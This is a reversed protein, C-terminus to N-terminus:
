PRPEPEIWLEGLVLGDLGATRYCRCADTPTCVIPEGAVNFSTNLLAPVGTLAAFAQILAHLRPADDPHVTQLRATGDVHVVAALDARRDPRVARIETMWPSPRPDDFYDAVREALIAPAFPRFPERRKIRANIADRMEARRPDALISRAGLARPGFEMPGDVWGVIAGSALREALFADGGLDALPRALLDEARAADACAAPTFALGLYPTPRPRASSSASRGPPPTPGSRPAVDALDASDHRPALHHGVYAAGIAAGSDGPAFSVHLPRRAALRANAAGNLAVGGGYCLPKGAPFTAEIRLLAEELRNQASRALDRHRQTLPAGPARPPGLLVDLAPSSLRHRGALDLYRRDLHFAGADDFPLLAEMQAAFTDEGFASLGMVKYEGENVEFGLHATILSYFLGLSDPFHIEREPTIGSPGACWVSTTAWEGVGDAVLVIAEGSSSPACFPSSFYAFAAHSLHHESFLVEGRFGGQRELWRRLDIRGDLYRSMSRTFAALSRPFAGLWTELQRELKPLTKEYFVVTDVDAPSIGAADLCAAIARAPYGHDHKIRSLREEEVALVIEGDRLLCAAADHYFASLGLVWTPM